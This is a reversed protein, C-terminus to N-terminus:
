RVLSIKLKSPKIFGNYKNHRNFYVTTNLIDVFNSLPITKCHTRKSQTYRILKM